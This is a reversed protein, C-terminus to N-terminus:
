PYLLFRRRREAFAELGDRWLAEMEALPAEAELMPRLDPLGLLLDIALREDEFEYVETRWDFQQPSQLRAERLLALYTAFPRFREQHTVIVQVGRCSSGAHKQFMPRFSAPRFLVGDLDQRRLAEALKLGDLWPAGVLEFPTTTGRGESLNTGEILCGGPYVRATAPTPMNPSPPVWPLGTEEFPMSRRWGEMEVVRLDCGIGFGGNFLLALEGVTMGHRVPLPYRGVFSSLEPALVPGEVQEGAIPNPRDLVVVPLGADRAAEMVFSLTYVFTYYRSGVDQLDCVIAALGALEAPAPRLSARGTGYLSVVSLGTHPDISRAVPEMDQEHGWLGHEPAFLRVVRLEDWGGLLELAHRATADISAPHVLLGIRDNRVLGAARAGDRFLRELGTIVRPM